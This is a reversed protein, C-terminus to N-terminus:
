KKQGEMKVFDSLWYKRGYKTIYPELDQGDYSGPRKGYKVTQRSCVGIKGDYEIWTYFVTEGYSDCQMSWAIPDICDGHMDTEPYTICIASFATEAHAFYGRKKKAHNIYQQLTKTKM